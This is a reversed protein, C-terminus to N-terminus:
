DLGGLLGNRGVFESPNVSKVAMEMGEKMQKEKLKKKMKHKMQKRLVRDVEFDKEPLRREKSISDEFWDLTVLKVTKRGRKLAARVTQVGETM